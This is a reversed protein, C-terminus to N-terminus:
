TATISVIPRHVCVFAVSEWRVYNRVGNPQVIAEIEAVTINFVKQSLSADGDTAFGDAELTDLEASQVGSPEFSLVSAIAVGKVDIFDKHLDVALLM